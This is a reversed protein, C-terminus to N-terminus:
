PTTGNGNADSTSAANTPSPASAATPERLEDSNLIVGAQKAMALRDVDLGLDIWLRVSKAVNTQRSAVADPSEPRTTQWISWPALDDTWGGVNRRGWPMTVQSRIASSFVESIAGLFDARVLLHGQTAALSGSSVETSLNQGLYAIAIDADTKDILAKCGEYGVAKPEEYRVGWSQQEDEGKPARVIGRSSLNVMRQFFAAKQKDDGGAPEEIVLLPNGHRECWRIWSRTVYAREVLASGVPMVAGRLWSRARASGFVVWGNGPTIVLRRGQADETRWQNALKDFWVREMPWPDVTLSWEDASYTEYTRGVAVGVDVYDEVLRTLVDEPFWDFWREEVQEAVKRKRARKKGEAPEISFSLGSKSVFGNVVSSRIGPIRKDRAFDAALKASHRFDGDAHRELAHDVESPTWFRTLGGDEQAFYFSERVAPM